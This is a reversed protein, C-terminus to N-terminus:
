KMVCASETVQWNDKLYKATYECSGSTGQFKGTGGQLVIIGRGGSGSTVDGQKREATLYQVDGDKDTLTCHAFVDSSDKMRVVRILCNQIYEGNMAPNSSGSTIAVGKLSGMTVKGEKWDMTQLDTKVSAVSKYRNEAQALNALSYAVLIVALFKITKM